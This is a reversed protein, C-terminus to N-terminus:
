LPTQRTESPEEDSCQDNDLEATLFDHIAAKSPGSAQTTGHRRQAEISLLRPVLATLEEWLQPAQRQSQHIYEESAFWYSVIPEYFRYWVLDPDIAGHRLLMAVEDFFDLVDDVDRTPEGDLLAEAAASRVAAMDESSWEAELRWLSEVAAGVHAAKSDQRVQWYVSLAIAMAALATACAALAAM